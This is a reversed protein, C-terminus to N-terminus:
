PAFDTCKVAINLQKKQGASNPLFENLFGQLTSVTQKFAIVDAVGTNVCCASRKTERNSDFNRAVFLYNIVLLPSQQEIM